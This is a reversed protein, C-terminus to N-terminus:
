ASQKAVEWRQLKNKIATRMEKTIPIKFKSDLEGHCHACLYIEGLRNIQVRDAVMFAVDEDAHFLIFASEGRELLQNGKRPFRLLVDNFPTYIGRTFVSFHTIVLPLTGKNTVNFQYQSPLDPIQSISMQLQPENSARALWLATGTATGVAVLGQIILSAWEMGTAM